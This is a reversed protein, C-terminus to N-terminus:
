KKLEFYLVWELAVIRTTMRAIQWLNRDRCLFREYKEHESASKEKEACSIELRKIENIIAQKSRM